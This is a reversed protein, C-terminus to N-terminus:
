INPGFNPKIDNDFIAGDIVEFSDLNNVLNGAQVNGFGYIGGFGLNYKRNADMGTVISEGIFIASSPQPSNVNFIGLNIVSPM